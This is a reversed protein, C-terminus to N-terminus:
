INWIENFVINMVSFIWKFVSGIQLCCTSKWKMENERKLHKQEQFYWEFFTSNSSFSSFVANRDRMSLFLFPFNLKNTWEWVLNRKWKWQKIAAPRLWVPILRKRSFPYIKADSSFDDGEWFQFFHYIDNYRSLLFTNWKGTAKLVSRESKAVHVYGYQLISSDISPSISPSLSFLRRM